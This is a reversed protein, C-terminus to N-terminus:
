RAALSLKFNRVDSSLNDSYISSTGVTTTWKESNITNYHYYYWNLRDNLSSLDLLKESLEIFDADIKSALEIARADQSNLIRQLNSLLYEELERSSVKAILYDNIKNLLNNLM